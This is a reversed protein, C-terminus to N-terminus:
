ACKVQIEEKTFNLKKIDIPKNNLHLNTIPGSSGRAVIYDIKGFQYVVRLDYSYKDYKDYRLKLYVTDIHILIYQNKKM